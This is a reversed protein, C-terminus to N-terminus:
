SEEPRPRMWVAALTRDDHCGQRSFDVLRALELPLPPEALGAALTPAVTTPGDELPRVVGDTLLVLADGPALSTFAWQTAPSDAPLADTVTCVLGAEQDASPM